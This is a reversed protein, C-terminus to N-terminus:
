CFDGDEEDEVRRLLTGFGGGAVWFGEWEDGGGVFSCGYIGDVCGEFECDDDAELLEEMGIEVTCTRSRGIHVRVTGSARGVVAPRTYLLSCPSQISSPNIQGNEVMKSHPNYTQTLQPSPQTLADTSSAFEGESQMQWANEAWVAVLEIVPRIYLFHM